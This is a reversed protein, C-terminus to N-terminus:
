RQVPVHIPPFSIKISLICTLLRKDCKDHEKSQLCVAARDLSTAMIEAATSDPSLRDQIKGPNIGLKVAQFVASSEEPFNKSTFDSHKSSPKM